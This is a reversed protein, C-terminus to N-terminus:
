SGLAMLPSHILQSHFSHLFFRARSFTSKPLLAPLFLPCPVVLLALCALLAWRCGCGGGSFTFSCHSSGSLLVSAFTLTVGPFTVSPWTFGPCAVSPLPFRPIPFIVSPLTVGPCIVHCRSLHCRAFHCRSLHCKAFHCWALFSCFCPRLCFCGFSCSGFSAFTLCGFSEPLPGMDSQSLELESDLDVLGALFFPKACSPFPFARRAGSYCSHPPGVQAQALPLCLRQFPPPGSFAGSFTSACVPPPSLPLPLVWGCFGQFPSAVMGLCSFGCFSSGFWSSGLWFVESFPFGLWFLIRAFPSGLWSSFVGSFPAAGAEVGLVLTM